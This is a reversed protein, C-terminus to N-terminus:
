WLWICCRMSCIRRCISSFRWCCPRSAGESGEPPGVRGPSHDASGGSLLGLARTRARGKQSRRSNRHITSVASVSRPMGSGTGTGSGGWSAAYLVSGPAPSLRQQARDGPSVFPNADLSANEILGPLDSLRGLVALSGLLDIAPDGHGFARRPSKPPAQRRGTAPVGEMLDRVKQAAASQACGKV